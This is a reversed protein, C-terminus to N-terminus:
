GPELLHHLLTLHPADDPGHADRGGLRQLVRQRQRPGRTQPAPGRPALHAPLLGADGAALWDADGAVQVCVCCWPLPSHPLPIWDLACSATAWTRRPKGTGGCCWACTATQSRGM